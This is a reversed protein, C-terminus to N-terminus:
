FSILNRLCRAELICVFFQFDSPAQDQVRDELFKSLSEMQYDSLFAGFDWPHDDGTWFTPMFRDHGTFLHSAEIKLEDFSFDM